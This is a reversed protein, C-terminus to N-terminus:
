LLEKLERWHELFDLGKQTTVYKIPSHHVILFGRSQLRALYKQLLKWSLNTKYMVKTKSQPQKCLSLIEAMIDFRTRNVMSMGLLTKDRM